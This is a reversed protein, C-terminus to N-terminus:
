TESTLKGYKAELRNFVQGDPIGTGSERGEQIQQRINKIQTARLEEHEEFLRLADRIVESASSYPMDLSEKKLTSNPPELEHVVCSNDEGQAFALAEKASAIIRQGATQKKKIDM